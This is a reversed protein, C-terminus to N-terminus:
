RKISFSWTSQGNSATGTIAQGNMTGTYTVTDNYFQLTVRNNQISYTGPTEGDADIMVVASESTFRFALNGYKGGLDETGSWITKALGRAAPQVQPVVPTPKPVDNM